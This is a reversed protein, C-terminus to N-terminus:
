PHDLRCPHNQYIGGGGRRLGRYDAPLEVAAVSSQRDRTQSKQDDVVLVCEGNGQYQHEMPAPKVPLYATSASAPFYLAFMSGRNSSVVDIFGGHDHVTNWVVALGLGTGSRGMVKKSYFPSFIQQIDQSSIGPGDDEVSIMIYEGPDITEYGKYATTLRVNKTAVIIQGSTQIAEAANNVLNMISKSLHIASCNIQKLKGELYPQSNLIRTDSAM